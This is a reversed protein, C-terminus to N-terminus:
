ALSSIISRKCQKNDIKFGYPSINSDFFPPLEKIIQFAKRNVLNSAGSNRKWDDTAQQTEIRWIKSTKEFENFGKNMKDFSHKVEKDLEYMVTVTKRETDKKFFFSYSIVSILIIILNFWAPSNSLLAVIFIAISVWLSIM